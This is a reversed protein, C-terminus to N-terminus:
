RFYCLFSFFKNVYHQNREEKKRNIISKQNLLYVWVSYELLLLWGMFGIWMEEFLYYIRYKLKEERYILNKSTFTFLKPDNKLKLNGTISQPSNNEYTYKIFGNLNIKFDIM